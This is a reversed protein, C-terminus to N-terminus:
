PAALVLRGAFLPAVEQEGILGRVRSALAQEFPSDHTPSEGQPRDSSAAVLARLYAIVLQKERPETFEIHLSVSGRRPGPAGLRLYQRVDISVGPVFVTMDLARRVLRLLHVLNTKGVGNPGVIVTLGPHLDLEFSEFSLLNTAHISRIRM